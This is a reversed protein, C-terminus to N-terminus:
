LVFTLDGFELDISTHVEKVTETFYGAKASFDINTTGIFYNSIILKNAKWALTEELSVCDIDFTKGAEEARNKEDFCAM